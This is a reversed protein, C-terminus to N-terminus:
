KAEKILIYSIQLQILSSSHGPTIKPWEYEDTLLKQGNM